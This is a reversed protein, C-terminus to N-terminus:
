DFGPQRCFTHFTTSWCKVIFRKSGDPIIYKEFFKVTVLLILPLFITM